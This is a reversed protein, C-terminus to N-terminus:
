KKKGKALIERVMEISPIEYEKIINGDEDLYGFEKLKRVTERNIRKVATDIATRLTGGDIVVEIYANSLERELMYTGPIRPTEVINHMQEVIIAKDRSKWPLEKFAEINATNWIFEKGYTTQLTVGFEVQVDKSMWWKLYEWAAEDREMTSGDTLVIKETRDSKMIVSNQAAGATMRNIVQEGNEDLVPNGNEDVQPVGPVLSIAWSNEIEPAANILTNYMFYDAIGIPIDGMRFHQYFSTDQPIDYITFLETLTEFATIAKESDIATLYYPQTKDAYKYTANYLSVGSQYLIPTMQAFSRQGTTGATPYFFELGRNKLEPVIHQIDEITNPVKINLKEIIDTRYYQVWFYFTEPMSYIGGDIVSPILMGEPFRSMVEAYDDFKTMDVIANRVALEFPQTYDIAQAVDPAEGAANSLILKGADPM